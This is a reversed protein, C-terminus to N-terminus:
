CPLRPADGWLMELDYYTRADSSMLHVIVDGLDILVWRADDRGEVGLPIQGRGKMMKVIEDAIGQIQRRSTGTGIVFFSTVPSLGRLDLLVVDAARRSSAAEACARAIEEEQPAGELTM